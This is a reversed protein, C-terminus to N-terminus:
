LKNYPPDITKYVNTQSTTPRKSTKVINVSHQTNKTTGDFSLNFKKIIAPYRFRDALKFEFIDRNLKNLRTIEDIANTKSEFIIYHWSNGSIFRVGHRIIGKLKNLEHDTYTTGEPVLLEPKRVSSIFYIAINDLEYCIDIPTKPVSDHKTEM